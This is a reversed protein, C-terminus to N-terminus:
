YPSFGVFGFMPMMNDGMQALFDPNVNVFIDGSAIPSNAGWYWSPNIPMGGNAMIADFESTSNAGNADDKKRALLWILFGAAFLGVVSYTYKM